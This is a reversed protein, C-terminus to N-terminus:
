HVGPDHQDLVPVDVNVCVREAALFAGDGVGAALYVVAVCGFGEVIGHAAVAPHQVDGVARLAVADADDLAGHVIGCGLIGDQAPPLERVVEGQVVANRRLAEMERRDAEAKARIAALAANAQEQAIEHTVHSRQPRADGNLVELNKYAALQVKIAEIKATIDPVPNGDEDAALRGNPAMKYGPNEIVEQIAITLLELRSRMVARGVKEDEQEPHRAALIKSVDDPTLGYQEALDALTYRGSKWRGYIESEKAAVVQGVRQATIGYMKGIVALTHERTNWKAFIEDDRAITAPTRPRAV